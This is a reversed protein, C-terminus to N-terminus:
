SFVSALHISSPAIQKGCSMQGLTLSVETIEECAGWAM